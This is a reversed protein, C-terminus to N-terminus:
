ALLDLVNEFEHPPLVRRAIYIGTIRVGPFREALKQHMARFHTGVTLVDDFIGIARPAPISLSEDIEYVAALEEVTPRRESEHAAEMSVTQRVLARMDVPLKAAAGIQQCVQTMRDDYAPDSPIKSPPTPVLTAARLWDPNLASALETACQAIARGKYAYGGAGKKKKLNSILGNTESFAYGKRSTYERLFIVSDTSLLHLHDARNTEDIKQFRLKTM